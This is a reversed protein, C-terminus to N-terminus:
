SWNLGRNTSIVSAKSPTYGTERLPFFESITIDQSIHEVGEKDAHCYFEKLFAQCQALQGADLSIYKYNAKVKDEDLSLELDNPNEVNFRAYRKAVYDKEKIRLNFVVKM